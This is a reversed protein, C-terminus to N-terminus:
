SYPVGRQSHTPLVKSFIICLKRMKCRVTSFGTSILMINDDYMKWISLPYINDSLFHGRIKKDSDM